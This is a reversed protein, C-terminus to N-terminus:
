QEPIVGEVTGDALGRIADYLSEEMPIGLATNAAYAKAEIEGPLLVPEAPRLPSTAKIRNWFADMREYYADLGLVRAPDIVVVFHAVGQHEEPTRYMSKVGTGFAGGGLVGALLDVALALGYGKHGGIPLVFGELGKLPDTTPNGDPDLAWGLPIQEGRDKAGRMKGRAAVCMAIDLMFHPEQRRPAGIGIPNNGIKPERGGWPAMTVSANTGMFCVLRQRCAGLVYPGVAGFHNSNRCAVYALGSRRALRIAETLGRSAVVSGLGHDGDVMAIAPSLESTTINPTAKTGGRRIHGIYMGLRRTGHTEIGMLDTRVLIDAATEADDAPM